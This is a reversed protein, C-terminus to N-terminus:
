ALNSTGSSKTQYNELDDIDIIYNHGLTTAIRQEEESTVTWLLLPRKSRLREARRSSLGRLDYVIFDPKSHWNLLMTKLVFKKILNMKEHKLSGSLQGRPIEPANRKFWALTFPNFSQIAYDGQYGQLAHLISPEIGKRNKPNKIEILLPVAGAVLALVEQLTPIAEATEYLSLQKIEALTVEDTHKSLGTLRHLHDDHFVVVSNDAIVQIDLEIAIGNDIAKSFASLSNEPTDPASHIGMHAFPTDLLWNINSKM